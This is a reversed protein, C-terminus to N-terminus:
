ADWGSPSYFTLLFADMPHRVRWAEMVPRAQEFEGVSACHFWMWRQGSSLNATAQTLKSLADCRMNLWGNAKRHGLAALLRVTSGYALMALIHVLRVM